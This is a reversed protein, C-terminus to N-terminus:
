IPEERAEEELIQIIEDIQKSTQLHEKEVIELEPNKEQNSPGEQSRRKPKRPISLFSKEKEVMVSDQKNKSRTRPYSSSNMIRKTIHLQELREENGIEHEEFNNKALFEKWHTGKNRV